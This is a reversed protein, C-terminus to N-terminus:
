PKKDYIGYDKHVPPDLLEYKYEVKLTDPDFMEILEAFSWDGNQLAEEDVTLPDRQTGDDDRYSTSETDVKYRGTIKVIIEREM